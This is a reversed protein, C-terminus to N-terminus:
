TKVEKVYNFADLSYSGTVNQLTGTNDRFVAQIELTYTISGASPTYFYSIPIDCTIQNITTQLPALYYASGLSTRISSGNAKIFVNINAYSATLITDSFVASIYGQILVPYLGSAVITSSALSGVTVNNVTTYGVTTYGQTASQQVATIQTIINTINTAFTNINTRVKRLWEWWVGPKQFQENPVPPVIDAM